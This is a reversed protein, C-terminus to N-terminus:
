GTRQQTVFAGAPCSWAAGREARVGKMGDGRASLRRTEQVLEFASDDAEKSQEQVALFMHKWVSSQPTAERSVPIVGPEM